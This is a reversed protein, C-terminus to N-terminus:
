KAAAPLPPISQENRFFDHPDVKSKVAALREFNDKFYKEGWVRAKAYSTVNGGEDLENTGLDLDRYNVYVARPNKSVYPTLDNYLGRVWSMMVRQKELVAATGNRSDFWVSYIQFQYLYNRHPFPTASPSISGMQGGYPDLQLLAAEPKDLWKSWIIEWAHRPMAEQVHDSKVKLYYYPNSSRNLLVEAPLDATGYYFFVTSKVWSMEQCDREAMGLDRFHRRMTDVLIGCRGLFLAVFDAQQNRVLVRLYLDRPLAPAIAQWKTILDVASENRRRRISFVTVTETVPVLRVKWSVVVGFSEGGGGRIAWFLDEGMTSRNLLRGEADVVVADLVNDASLGYKPSLAGFGGGSLHGGVGVTPCNGAPFGFTRNAAAAAYYLEGLTAGSGVWAEARSGDIHIARLAALDLVAFHRRHPDVSAYSLGEYDHGGSRTRVHVSHRRGCVVTTQVHAPETAAVIVLPGTTGPMVYRLNRVSSLLVSSYNNAPTYILAPPIDASLCSLFADVDSSYAASSSSTRASSLIICVLTVFITQTRAM